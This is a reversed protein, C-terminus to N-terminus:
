AWHLESRLLTVVMASPYIVDCFSIFFFLCDRALLNKKFDVALAPLYSIPCWLLEQIFCNGFRDYVKWVSSIKIVMKFNLTTTTWDSLRTWSKAVGHVAANWPERDESNGLTPEFEHRKLWHHCRVMENETAGKKMQMWDQGADSNKGILWSKADSPWLIPAEADTRGIFIWSQNGKPHVPKMEKCDLPSELTKELMVTLLCWNKPAWGCDCFSLWFSLM